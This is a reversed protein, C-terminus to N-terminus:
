RKRRRKLVAEIEAAAERRDEERIGPGEVPRFREAHFYAIDDILRRREEGSVLVKARKKAGPRRVLPGARRRKAPRPAAM